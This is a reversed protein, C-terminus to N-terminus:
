PDFSLLFTKKQVTGLDGVWIPEPLAFFALSFKEHKHVKLNYIISCDINAGGTKRLSERIYKNQALFYM